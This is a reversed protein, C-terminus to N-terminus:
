GTETILFILIRSTLTCRFQLVSDATVLGCPQVHILLHIAELIGLASPPLFLVNM